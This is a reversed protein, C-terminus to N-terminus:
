RSPAIHCLIAEFTFDNQELEGRSCNSVHIQVNKGRSAQAKPADNKGQM